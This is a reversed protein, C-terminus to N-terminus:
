DHTFLIENIREERKSYAYQYLYHSLYFIEKVKVVIPKNTLTTFLVRHVM